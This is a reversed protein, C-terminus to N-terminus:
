AGVEITSADLKWSTISGIESAFQEWYGSGWHPPQFTREPGWVAAPLGRSLTEAIVM